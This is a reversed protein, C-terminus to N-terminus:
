KGVFRGVRKERFSSMAELYDDTSTVVAMHSSILDLSTPLDIDAGQRVARKIMQVAVPPRSALRDALDQTAALLDADEYVSDVLGMRLAAEADVFEGTWLLRLATSTGVTRPLLWTGGNGPVLGVRVYGTCFRASRGALRVDCLLAMDMGAGVAPGNVAAIVPKDTQLMARAVRHVRETLLRKEGLPQRDEGHFADLDVGSCFASETGTVVVVRVQHDQQARLIHDAWAEVMELTFANKREPRNLTITATHGEVGYLLDSM